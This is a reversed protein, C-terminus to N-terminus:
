KCPILPIDEGSPTVRREMNHIACANHMRPPAPLASIAASEMHMATLSDRSISPTARLHDHLACTHAGCDLLPQASSNKKHAQNPASKGTASDASIHQRSSHQARTPQTPQSPQSPPWLTTCSTLMGLHLWGLFQQTTISYARRPRLAQM